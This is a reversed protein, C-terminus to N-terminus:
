DRHNINPALLESLKTNQLLIESYQICILYYDFVKKTTKQQKELKNQQKASYVRRKAPKLQRTDNTVNLTQRQTALKDM